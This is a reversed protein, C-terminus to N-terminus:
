NVNCFTILDTNFDLNHTDVKVLAESEGKIVLSNSTKVLIQPAKTPKKNRPAPM